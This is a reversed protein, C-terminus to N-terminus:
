GREKRREDWPEEWRKERYERVKWLGDLGMMNWGYVCHVVKTAAYVLGRLDKQGSDQCACWESPTVDSAFLSGGM